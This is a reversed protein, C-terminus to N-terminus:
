RKEDRRHLMRAMAHDAFGPLVCALGLAINTGPQPWLEPRPRQMLKVIKAAVQAATQRKGMGSSKSRSKASATEFFETETTAPHITSVYVGTGGLEVRLAEALSLQAAKTMAYVGYLPLGRRAAASSTVLIHGSKQPVMVRVAAQMAYLTGKVNVRVIEDFAEDTLEAVPGVLGYGANAFMVDLRGAKDLARQAVADVQTRAAVDCALVHATSGAQRVQAAIQELRDVRRAALILTVKFPALALATAAGIGSSAGTIAIVRGTLDISM